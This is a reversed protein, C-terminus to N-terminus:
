LVFIIRLEVKSIISEGSIIGRKDDSLLSEPAWVYSLLNSSNLYASFGIGTDGFDIFITPSLALPILNITAVSNNKVVGKDMITFSAGLNVINIGLSAFIAYGNNLVFTYRSSVSVSFFDVTVLYYRIDNNFKDPPNVISTSGTGLGIRFSGELFFDFQQNSALPIKGLRSLNYDSSYRIGDLPISAFPLNLDSNLYGFGDFDVENTFYNYEDIIRTQSFLIGTSFLVLLLIKKM